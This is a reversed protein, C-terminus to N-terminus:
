ALEKITCPTRRDLIFGENYLYQIIEYKDEGPDSYFIIKHDYWPGQYRIEIDIGKINLNMILRRFASGLINEKKGREM